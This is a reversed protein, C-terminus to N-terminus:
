LRFQISVLLSRPHYVESNRKEYLSTDMVNGVILMGYSMQTAFKLKLTM